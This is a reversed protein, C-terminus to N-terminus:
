IPIPVYPDDIVPTAQSLTALHGKTSFEAVVTATTKEKNLLTATAHPLNFALALERCVIGLIFQQDNSPTAASAAIIRNLLALERNRRRIEEEARKRETMDRIATVRVMRGQYPLTRAHVEVPFTSGDKRLALHEYPGEFGSTINKLVLDRSEPAVLDMVSMGIMEAPEYGLMRVFQENVEIVKGEDAIGIGEFTAETLRRFREESERLAEEVQVHETIDSLFSLVAPKGEWTIQVGINEVWRVQGARDIIRFSYVRPTEEGKLRQHHYRLVRERDQPNIFETFPKSILEQFSYGSVALAKPNCYEIFGDQTVMITEYTNEVVQILWETNEALLEETPKAHNKAIEYSNGQRTKMPEGAILRRLPPAAKM